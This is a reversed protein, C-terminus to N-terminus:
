CGSTMHAYADPCDKVGCMCTDEFMDGQFPNMDQANTTGYTALNIVDDASLKGETCQAILKASEYNLQMDKETTTKVM